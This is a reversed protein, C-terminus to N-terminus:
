PHLPMQAPVLGPSAERWCDRSRAAWIAGDWHSRLSLPKRPLMVKLFPLFENNEQWAIFCCGDETILTYSLPTFASPKRSLVPLIQSGPRPKVSGTLM